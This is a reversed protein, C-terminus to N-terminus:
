SEDGDVSWLPSKILMCDLGVAKQRLSLNIMFSVLLVAKVKVIYM